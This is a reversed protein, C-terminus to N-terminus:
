SELASLEGLLADLNDNAPGPLQEINLFDADAIVIARGRGIRCRAVFGSKDIACAGSLAGPSVTLVSRDGLELTRPGAEDPADLRLGWHGLLGTDAFGPPPRLKDGLPRKSPWELKPDALLLVRGGDRVWRDLDVLAEAPQALPHAMLLLRGKGLSTADTTGITVVRYRTELAALAKSGGGQLSFEEPFILPLTTLLMLAPRENAARPSLDARKERSALAFAAAGIVLLLAAGIALLRAPNRRM